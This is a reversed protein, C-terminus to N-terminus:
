EDRACQGITRDAQGDDRGERQALRAPVAFEFPAQDIRQRLADEAAKGLELVQPQDLLAAQGVVDLDDLEKELGTRPEVVGPELLVVEARVVRVDRAVRQFAAEIHDIGGASYEMASFTLVSIRSPPV